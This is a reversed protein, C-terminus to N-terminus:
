KFEKISIVSIQRGYDPEHRHTARRYSFFDAELTYTDRDMLAASKIGSRFLRWACYGALDFMLHGARSASQFFRNSDDHDDLFPEVFDVSVEYSTRSICPGVCAKIDNAGLRQMEKVTNDLVGGLAGKWGAHAAGIVPSGDSKVGYFLVPACDATLIGLAFGAQDTVMADAKPRDTLSWGNKVEICDACHVQHVSLLNEARVGALNAVIARNTAVVDAEDGSGPGCNLSEFVGKSQGGKRMFYGHFLTSDADTFRDQTLFLQQSM